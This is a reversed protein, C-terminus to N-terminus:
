FYVTVRFISRATWRTVLWGLFDPTIRFYFPVFSYGDRGPPPLPLLEPVSLTLSNRPGHRWVSETGKFALEAIRDRGAETHSPLRFLLEVRLSRQSGLSCVSYFCLKSFLYATDSKQSSRRVSPGSFKWPQKSLFRRLSFPIVSSDSGEAWGARRSNRQLSQARFWHIFCWVTQRPAAYM